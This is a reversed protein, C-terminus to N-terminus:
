TFTCANSFESFLQRAMLLSSKARTAAVYLLHCEQDYELPTLNRKQLSRELGSPTPFDDLMVVRNWERGKAQHATSVILPAGREERLHRAKLDAVIDPIGHRYTEVLSVLRVLEPEDDKESAEVLDPWSEFSSVLADWPASGPKAGKWLAHAALLQRTITEIGGVLHFRLQSQVLSEILRMNTRALVTAPLQLKGDYEDVRTDLSPLGAVPIEPPDMTQRLIWNAVQASEPGFRFSQSLHFANGKFAAMANHAGRFAYISQRSDGVVKAPLGSRKVIGILVPNLDQAEDIFIYRYPGDILGRLAFAKLYTDHTFPLGNREYDLLADCFEQMQPLLASRLQAPASLIHGEEVTASDSILFRTFTNLAIRRMSGRGILGVPRLLRDLPDLHEPRLRPVIREAHRQVGLANYAYSHATRAEVHSPFKGKADGAISANFALYLAKEPHAHSYEVCTTTKACGAFAEWRDTQDPGQALIQQQEGTLKIRGSGAANLGPM